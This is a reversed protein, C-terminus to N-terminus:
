DLCPFIGHSFEQDVVVGVRGVQRDNSRNPGLGCGELAHIRADGCPWAIVLHDAGNRAGVSHCVRSRTQAAYRAMPAMRGRVSQAINRDQIQM